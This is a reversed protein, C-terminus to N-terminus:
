RVMHFAFIGHQALQVSGSIEKDLNLIIQFFRGVNM